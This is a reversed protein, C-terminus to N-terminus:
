VDSGAKRAMHLFRLLLPSSDKGRSVLSTSCEFSPALPSASADESAALAEASPKTSTGERLSTAVPRLAAAGLVRCVAHTM